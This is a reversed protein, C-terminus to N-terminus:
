KIGKLTTRLEKFDDGRSNIYNILRDATLASPPSDGSPSCWEVLAKVFQLRMMLVELTVPSAFLRFEVTSSPNLNVAMSRGVSGRKQALAAYTVSTADPNIRAYNVNYRGAIENILKANEAANIFRYMKGIQLKTLALRDVHVHMGCQETPELPIGDEVINNWFETFFKRHTEM